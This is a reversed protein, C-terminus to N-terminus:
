SNLWDDFSKWDPGEVEDTSAVPGIDCRCNPHAPPVTADCEEKDLEGSSLMKEIESTLKGARPLCCVECTKADIVAIWVFDQVGMDNAAEVQGNRVSQVFDDTIDQELEWNYQMTGTESNWQASNDFRSPPLETDKYAQVAQDWDQDNTLDHYFTFEQDEDDDPRDKDAERIPKLARPPRVYTEIKPFASRVDQLIEPGTKELSVSSIFANVIKSRLRTFVQFMQVTLKKGQLTGFKAQQDLKLKYEHHDLQVTKKTARAIAELEAIYTLVFANRRLRKIRDIIKPELVDFIAKIREDLKASDVRLSYSSIHNSLILVSVFGEISEFASFLMRSIDLQANSEMKELAKNRDEIFSKYKSSNRLTQM